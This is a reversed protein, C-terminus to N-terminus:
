ITVDYRIKDVISIFTAPPQTQYAILWDWLETDECRLLEAFQQQLDKNLQEYRANFFALLREEVESIGRRCHFRVKAKDM